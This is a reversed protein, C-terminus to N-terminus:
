CGLEDNRVLSADEDLVLKAADEAGRLRTGRGLEAADRAAERGIPLLLLVELRVVLVVDRGVATLLRFSVRAILRADREANAILRMRHRTQQKRRKSISSMPPMSSLPRRTRARVAMPKAMNPVFGIAADVRKERRARGSEGRARGVEGLRSKVERTTRVEGRQRRRLRCMLKM